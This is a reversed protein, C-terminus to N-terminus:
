HYRCRKVVTVASYIKTWITQKTTNQLDLFTSSLSPVKKPLHVYSTPKVVSFRYHESLFCIKVSKVQKQAECINVYRRFIDFGPYFTVKTFIGDRIGWSMYIFLEDVHINQPTIITHICSGCLELNILCNSWANHNIWAPTEALVFLTVPSRKMGMGTNDNLHDNCEDLVPQIKM